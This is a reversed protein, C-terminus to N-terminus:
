EVQEQDTTEQEVWALYSASGAVIPLAIIEPVEYPHNSQVLKILPDVFQRRTKIILLLEQDKEINGQWHYWSTLGPVCNVCAALRGEVLLRAIKEGTEQNPVTVLVVCLEM